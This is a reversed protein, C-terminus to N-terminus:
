DLWREYSVMDGTLGRRVGGDVEKGFQLFGARELVRTSGPNSNLARGIVRNVKFDEGLADIGRELLQGAVGKGLWKQAVRYGAEAQDGGVTFNLRGVIENGVLAVYYVGDQSLMDLKLAEIAQAMGAETLMAAPRPPVFASFYEANELEFRLLAACHHSAIKELEFQVEAM